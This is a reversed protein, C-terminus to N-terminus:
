VPVAEAIPATWAAPEIGLRAEESVTRERFSIGAYAEFDAVTRVTGCRLPGIPNRLLLNRATMRSLKDRAGWSKFVEAGPQHDDWHKRRYFGGYNHWMNTRIPHFLDWGWTFARVSLTIEEGHFYLEPDYPVQEVFSGGAFLFHGSVFRARVPRDRDRWGPIPMPCVRPITDAGIDLATLVLPEAGPDPEEDIEYVPLYATLLPKDAPASRLQHMIRDDWAPVFRHHSDFQLFHDEGDYMKMCEARAWCTGQADRWNVDLVTVQPHNLLPTIDEDDGHQWCIGFRLREPRRAKALMDLVTPVLESDRYSAISVFITM